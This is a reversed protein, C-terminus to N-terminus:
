VVRFCKHGGNEPLRKAIEAALAKIRTLCPGPFRLLLADVSRCALDVVYALPQTEMTASILSARRSKTNSHQSSPQGRRNPVPRIGSSADSTDSEFSAITASNMLMLPKSSDTALNVSSTHEAIADHSTGARMEGIYRSQAYAFLRM